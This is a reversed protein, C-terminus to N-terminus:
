SDLASQPLLLAASQRQGAVGEIRDFGPHAISWGAWRGTVGRIHLYTERKLLSFNRPLQTLLNTTAEIILCGNM